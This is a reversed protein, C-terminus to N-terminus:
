YAMGATPCVSSPPVDDSAIYGPPYVDRWLPFTIRVRRLQVNSEDLESSVSRVKEPKTVDHSMSQGLIERALV